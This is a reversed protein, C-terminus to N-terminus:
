KTEKKVAPPLKLDAAPPVPDAGKEEKDASPEKEAGKEPEIVNTVAEKSATEEEDGTAEPGVEIRSALLKIAKESLVLETGAAVEKGDGGYLGGKVVRVHFRKM